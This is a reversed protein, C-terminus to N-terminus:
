SKRASIYIKKTVPQVIVAGICVSVIVSVVYVYPNVINFPSKHFLSLFIGQLGYIEMSYKGLNQSVRNQIPIWNVISVVAIPFSVASLCKFLISIANNSVRSFIYCMCVCFFVVLSILVAKKKDGLIIRKQKQAYWAMGLPFAMIGEYWTSRYGTAYLYICLLMCEMFVFFLKKNHFIKFTIFFLMYLILQVQLYWGNAIITGGFTLSKVIKGFSLEGGQVFNFVLYLSVYLCIVKYFPIIKFKMFTDIYTDRKALYSAYLGYGSLFFFCAVSLYGIAQLVGGIATNRFLDSHQYLHHISVFM